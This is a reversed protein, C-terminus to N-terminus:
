AAQMKKCLGFKIVPCQVRQIETLDVHNNQDYILNTSAGIEPTISTVMGMENYTYGTTDGYSGSVSLVQGTDYDHTLLPAARAESSMVM